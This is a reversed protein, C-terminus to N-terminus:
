PQGAWKRVPTAPAPITPFTGVDAGEPVVLNAHFGPVPETEPYEFGEEDTLMNGTPKYITGLISIWGPGTYYPTGDEHTEPPIAAWLDEETDAKLYHYEYAM